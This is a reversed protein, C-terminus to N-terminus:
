RERGHTDRFRVGRERLRSQVTRASFGLREGIRALSLGSVYLQVAEDIQTDSMGRPRRAVSARDLHDIVTVKNISLAQARDVVREGAQYRYVIEQRTRAPLKRHGRPSSRRSRPIQGTSARAETVLGDVQRTTENRNCYTRLLEVWRAYIRSLVPNQQFVSGRKTAKM